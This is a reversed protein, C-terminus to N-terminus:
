IKVSSSIWITSLYPAMEMYVVATGMEKNITEVVPGVSGLLLKGVLIQNNSLQQM